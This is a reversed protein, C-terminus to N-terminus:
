TLPQGNIKFDYIIMRLMALGISLLLQVTRSLPREASVSVITPSTLTCTTSGCGLLFVFDM